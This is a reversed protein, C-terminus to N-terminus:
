LKDEDLYGILVNAPLRNLIEFLATFDGYEVDETIQEFVKEWLDENMEKEWHGAVNGVPV